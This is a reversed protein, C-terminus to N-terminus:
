FSITKTQVGFRNGLVIDLILCLSSGQYNDQCLLHLRDLSVTPTEGRLLGFVGYDRLQKRIRRAGFTQPLCDCLCQEISTALAKEACVFSTPLDGSYDVVENRLVEIISRLQQNGLRCKRDVYLEQGRSKYPTERLERELLSSGVYQSETRQIETRLNCCDTKASRPTIKRKM